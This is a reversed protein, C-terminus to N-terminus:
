YFWKKIKGKANILIGQRRCAWCMYSVTVFFSAPHRNLAGIKVGLLTTKGGFGMPGIKTKNTLTLIDKESKALTANPNKDNIKRLFQEKSCAYGSSRDGGICVGLIGPACGKGQAKIVADLVCKKIGELDRGAELKTDPLKYQTGVNESGGGKLILKIECEKKAWHHFHITLSGKGLNNGSNEGTLSDVSNQRLYGIDTAKKIAKEATTRFQNEYFGLPANIYFLISGTDQCIPQSKKKAIEINELITELAYTANSGKKEKKLGKELAKRVDNPLETSTSRILELIQSSTIKM